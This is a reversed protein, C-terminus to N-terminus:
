VGLISKLISDKDGVELSLKSQAIINNEESSDKNKYNVLIDCNLDKYKNLQYYKVGDYIGEGWKGCNSYARVNHGLGALYSMMEVVEAEQRSIGSIKISRPSWEESDGIYCVIDLPNDNYPPTVLAEGFINGQGPVDSRGICYVVHSNNVYFGAKNFHEVLEWVTPAFLHARPMPALWCKGDREWKWPYAWDLYEGRMWSGHPTMLLFVGNDKLLTKAPIFMDNVPDKLHEYSDTSTAYDFSHHPLLNAVDQFYTVIHKAGTNFEQAKKNALLVSNVCLDVGTVDYGLMGYRNTFCGDLCGFDVMKSGTKMHDKITNFRNTDQSGVPLDAPMPTGVEIGTHEPANVKQSLTPNDIWTITDRTLQLAKQTAESYRVHYPAKELFSIASLVEDQRMYQKWIMIVVAQLQDDTMELPYGSFDYTSPIEWSDKDNSTRPKVFPDKKVNELNIIKKIIDDAAGTIVDHKNFLYTAGAQMMTINNQMIGSFTIVPILVGHEKMWKLLDTGNGEPMDHDLLILDIKCYHIISSAALSGSVFSFQVLGEADFLERLHKAIALQNDLNDECVLIHKVPYKLRNHHRYKFM